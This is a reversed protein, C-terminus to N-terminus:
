AKTRKIIKAPVGGVVCNPPIDKVVVANAGIIVNNGIKVSGVVRAGTYIIVNNGLIPPPFKSHLCKVGLTIPGILTLNDGAVVDEAVTIGKIHIYLSKGIKVKPSIDIDFIYFTIVFYIPYFLIGLIKILIFNNLLFYREIRYFFSFLMGPNRFFVILFLFPNMKKHLKLYRDWDSLILKFTKLM